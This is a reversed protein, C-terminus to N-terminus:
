IREEIGQIFAHYFPNELSPLIVGITHSRLRTETTAIQAPAAPLVITGLGHHTKVVGELELKRYASRVTHLNISLHRALERVSPQQERSNLQVSAILWTFQQKLQEALTDGRSPDVKIADLISSM